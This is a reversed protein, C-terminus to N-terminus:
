LRRYAIDMITWLSEEDVKTLLLVKPLLQSRNAGLVNWMLFSISTSALRYNIMDGRGILPSHVVAIADIYTGIHEQTIEIWNQGSLGTGLLDDGTGKAVNKARSVASTYIKGNRALVRMGGRSDKKGDRLREPAIEAAKRICKYGLKIKEM